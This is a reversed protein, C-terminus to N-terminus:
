VISEPVAKSGSPCLPSGGTLSFPTKAGVRQGVLFGKEKRWRLRGYTDLSTVRSSGPHLSGTIVV